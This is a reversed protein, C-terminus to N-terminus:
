YSGRSDSSPNVGEGSLHRFCPPCCLQCEGRLVIGVQKMALLRVNGNAHDCLSRIPSDLVELALRFSYTEAFSLIQM